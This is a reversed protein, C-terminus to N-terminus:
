YEEGYELFFFCINSVESFLMKLGYQVMKPGKLYKKEDMKLFMKTLFTRDYVTKCTKRNATESFFCFYNSRFRFFPM